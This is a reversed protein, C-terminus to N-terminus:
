DEDNQKGGSNNNKESELLEVGELIKEECESIVQNCQVIRSLYDDINKRVEKLENLAQKLDDLAFKKRFKKAYKNVWLKIFEEGPDQGIRSGECWKANEMEKKQAGLYKKLDVM